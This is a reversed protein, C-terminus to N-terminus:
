PTGSGCCGVAAAPVWIRRSRTGASWSWPRRRSISGANVRLCPANSLFDESVRKYLRLLNDEAWIDAAQVEQFEKFTMLPFHIATMLQKALKSRKRPKYQIWAVAARFVVLESSVCLSCSNLYRLLQKAPLCKFKATRSVREFQSLAFGDALELLWGMDYAKAFSAVDLCSNPDIENQLFSLCLSLAPQYQLQLSTGAIEFVCEWSLPLDGSYSCGILAELESALLFPLTM